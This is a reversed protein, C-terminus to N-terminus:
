NGHNGEVTKSKLSDSYAKAAAALPALHPAFTLEYEKIAKGADVVVKNRAQFVPDDNLSKRIAQRQAVAVDVNEFAAPFQRELAAQLRATEAVLSALRKDGAQELQKRVQGLESAFRHNPIGDEKLRALEPKTSVVFDDEARRAKNVATEMAKFEPMTAKLHQKIKAIRKSIAKHTLFAKAYDTHLVTELDNHEAVLDRYDPDSLTLHSRVNTYEYKYREAPDRQVPARNAQGKTLQSRVDTWDDRQGTAQWIRVNDISAGPLDFQFAFYERTRDIIPHKGLVFERDNLHAVIEDNWYEVTMTQWEDFLPERDCEGLHAPVIGADRDIPTNVEFHGRRIQTVSNYGGGSGTVLRLDTTEGSFRFDFQIITNHFLADKLFVRKVELPDVETRLLGGDRLAFDAKFGWRGSVTQPDFNESFLLDGASCMWGHPAPPSEATAATRPVLSALMLLITSVTKM